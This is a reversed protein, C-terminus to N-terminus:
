QYMQNMVRNWINGCYTYTRAVYRKKGAVRHNLLQQQEHPVWISTFPRDVNENWHLVALHSRRVYELNGFSIRKDQFINLVNNFSEVYGTDAALVYDGPYKYVTCKRLAQRLLNEARIDTIIMKTPEYNRDTKCRSQLACRAHDNKYHNVINDIGEKIHLANGDASRIVYNVHTRVSAIKDSLQEHWTQGHKYKAGKAVNSIEKELAKVVHWVDNQNKTDEQHDKVYKNVSMNRDHAHMDVQIPGDQHAQLMNYIRETGIREHRQAVSDDEKTIISDVLVRHSQQGICVVDTQSSNKRWGHRADTLISIGNYDKREEEAKVQALGVEMLLADRCSDNYEEETAENYPDRFNADFYTQAITGIDASRTLREYQNPLIGSCYYGHAMRANVLFKNNPLYPSSPWNPLDHHCNGCRYSMVAGHGSMYQIHGTFSAGACTDTNRGIHASVSNAIDMVSSPCSVFLQENVDEREVSSFGALDRFSDPTSTSTESNNNSDSCNIYYDLLKIMVEGQTIRTNDSGMLEKTREFKRRISCDKDDIDINFRTAQTKKRYAKMYQAQKDKAEAM